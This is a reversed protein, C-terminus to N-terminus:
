MLKLILSQIFQIILGSSMDGDALFKKQIELIANRFEASKLIEAKIKADASGLQFRQELLALEADMKRVGKETFWKTQTFTKEFDLGSTQADITKQTATSKLSSIIAELAGDDMLPNRKILAKQMEKLQTDAATNETKTNLASVQANTMRTQNILGASSAFAQQVDRTSQQYDGSKVDPYQLPSAMNGPNGQSYILHKNLGADEYRKMQNVPSNWDLYKDLYRENAQAQFKALRMNARTQRGASGLGAFGSIMSGLGMAATGAAALPFM